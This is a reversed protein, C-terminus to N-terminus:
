GPAREDPTDGLSERPAQLFDRLTEGVQASALPQGLSAGRRKNCIAPPLITGRTDLLGAIFTDDFEPHPQLTLAREDYALAAYRCFSSSGIPTADPPLEM